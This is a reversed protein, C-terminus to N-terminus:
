LISLSCHYTGEPHRPLQRTESGKWQPHSVPIGAPPRLTFLNTERSCHIIKLNKQMIKQKNLNLITSSYKSRDVRKCYNIGYYSAVKKPVEKM